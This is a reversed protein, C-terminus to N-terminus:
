EELKEPEIILLRGPRTGVALAIQEKTFQQGSQREVADLAAYAIRGRQLLPGFRGGRMHEHAAVRSYNNLRAIAPGSVYIM